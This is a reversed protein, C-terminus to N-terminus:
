SYGCKAIVCGANFLKFQMMQVEKLGREFSGQILNKKSIYKKLIM